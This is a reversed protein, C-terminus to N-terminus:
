TRVLEPTIKSKKQGYPLLMAWVSNPLVEKVDKKDITLQLEGAKMASFGKTEPDATRNEAILHGALESVANVMFQPITTSGVSVGDTDATNFRPWGLSQASNSKSGFWSIQEDLLRTATLLARSKTGSQAGEWNLRYLQTDYYDDAEKISAYTNSAKVLTPTAM